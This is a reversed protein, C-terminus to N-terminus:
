RPRWQEAGAPGPHTSGVARDSELRPDHQPVRDPNGIAVSLTHGSSLLAAVPGDIIAGPGAKQGM